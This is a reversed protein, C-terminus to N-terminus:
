PCSEEILSRIAKVQPPKKLFHDFGAEQTKKVEGPDTWGTLAILITDKGWDSERIKRATAYGDLIPMGIDMVIVEPRVKDAEKLAEEGNRATFVENGSQRLAIALVQTISPSDDAILVKRSRKTAEKVRRDPSKKQSDPAPTEAGPPAMPLEIRITTKGNVSDNHVQFTGHHQEIFGKALPMITDAGSTDSLSPDMPSFRNFFKENPEEAIGSGVYSVEFLYQDGEARSLLTISEGENSNEHAVVCLSHLSKRIKEADVHLITEEEQLETEIRLNRHNSLEYVSAKVLSGAQVPSLRLPIREQSVRYIDVLNEVLRILRAVQDGMIARTKLHVEPDDTRNMIELGTRIPALPNLMEHALTAFFKENRSDTEAAPTEGKDSDRLICSASFRAVANEVAWNLSEATLDEASVIETVGAEFLKSREQPDSISSLIALIPWRGVSSGDHTLYDLTDEPTSFHLLLCDIELGRTDPIRHSQGVLDQKALPLTLDRNACTDEPNQLLFLRFNQANM